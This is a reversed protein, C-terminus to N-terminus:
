GEQKSPSVACIFGIGYPSLSYAQKFQMQSSHLAVKRGAIQSNIRVNGITSAITMYGDTQAVQEQIVIGLRDLDQIVLDAHNRKALQEPKRASVTIIQPDYIKLLVDRSLRARLRHPDYPQAHATLHTMLRDLFRAEDPTLQSLTQGFSVFMMGEGAAANELLAAWRQQLEEDCQVAAMPLLPLTRRVEDATLPAKDDRAAAWKTFIRDLNERQYFRYIGGFDGVALGLQEAVPGLLKKAADSAAATVIKGGAVAAVGAAVLKAEM